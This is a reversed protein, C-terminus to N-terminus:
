LSIQALFIGKLYQESYREPVEFRTGGTSCVNLFAKVTDCAQKPSRSDVPFFQPIEVAMRWVSSGEACIALVPKGTPIYEFIKSPIVAKSASLLLLGSAESLRVFLEQRQVVAHSEIRWGHEEFRGKYQTLDDQDERSLDGLFVLCGTSEANSDLGELLPALLLAARQSQRSGRLRGAHLLTLPRNAVLSASGDIGSAPYANTLVVTKGRAFPLRSQLMERWEDSTVFICRAQKLVRYELRSESWRRLWSSQLLPKLPDDLWGDRMDVILAAGVRRALQAAVVHSSEPPSTSIVWQAGKAFRLVSPHTVARRGWVITPDPNFMWNAVNRRFRNPKRAPRATTSLGAPERHLRLPDRITIETGWPMNAVSDGEGGRVLVVEDGRESMWRIFRDIRYNGVYGPQRWAPAVIIAKSTQM